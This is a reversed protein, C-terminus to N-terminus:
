TVGVNTSIALDRPLVGFICTVVVDTLGTLTGSAELAVADGPNLMLNAPTTTPASSITTRAGASVAFPTKLMSVGSGKAVGNIIKEVDITAGSGGDVDHRLKAELLFCRQNAVFFIPYNAGTAAATSAVYASVQFTIFSDSTTKYDRGGGRFYLDDKRALLDRGM